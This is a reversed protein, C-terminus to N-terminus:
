NGMVKFETRRNQSRGKPTDNTAIPHTEGYGKVTLRKENINNNILYKAVEKARNESLIQNDDHSGVNDTHGSLEAIVRPNNQMFEVLKKLEAKSEKKLQYSNTEFFINKLIIKEGEIIPYLPIDIEFPNIFESVTDLSFNESYFLYGPKSVNLAYNHHIPLCVLFDGDPKYSFSEMILDSSSLEFLQFKALLGTKTYADYVNGKVYSSPTPRAETYLEFKYLDDGTESLRNSSFYAINGKANVILGKENNYTNIPYGLNVPITWENSDKKQTYFLDFGGMGTKGKSAFYLTKNDLHIFPYAEDEITNITEGLNVPKEWFGDDSLTSMWLDMKGIGELRNSAFYLTRGDPSISPQSEWSRSNIPRGLNKPKSWEQGNKISYYIDCSGFGDQRNCATFFMMKGDSSITQAGENGETNINKMEEAKSWSSDTFESIYFDEQFLKEGNITEKDVPLLVTFTLTKGDATISPSYEDHESNIDMGINRPDFPVPNKIAHIAFECSQLYEFATIQDIERVNKFNLFVDFNNKASEYLGISFEAKALNLFGNKFFNTDIALGKRYYYIEKEVSDISNYLDALTLYAEIFNNDIESASELKKIAKDLKKENLLNLAAEYHKIAKESKTTYQKKAYCNFALITFLINIILYKM